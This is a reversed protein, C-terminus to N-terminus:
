EYMVDEPDLEEYHSGGLEDHIEDLRDNYEEIEEELDKITDAAALQDERAQNYSDISSNLAEQTTMANQQRISYVEALLDANTREGQLQYGRLAYSLMSSYAVDALDNQFQQITTLNTGTGTQRMGSGAQATSAEGMTMEENIREMRRQLFATDFQQALQLNYEEVSSLYSDIMMNERETNYAFQMGLVTDATHIQQKMYELYGANIDQLSLSETLSDSSLKGFVSSTVKGSVNDTSLSELLDSVTQTGAPLNFITQFLEDYEDYMGTGYTADFSNRTNNIMRQSAIIADNRNVTAEMRGLKAEDSWQRLQQKAKADGTFIGIFGGVLGGIIGGVVNGLGPIVSGISAGIGAGSAVGGLISAASTSDYYNSYKNAM